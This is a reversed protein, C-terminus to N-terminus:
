GELKLNKFYFYLLVSLFIIGVCYGGIVDSAWHAGLYIRSVSVFLILALSAASVLVRWLQPIKKIVIMATALFGFFVVYFVVHGSPFSPDTLQQYVSVLTDTPRPRHIIIKIIANAGSALLTALAFLAERRRRILFFAIAAILVTVFAVPPEGFFSVAQMAPLYTTGGEQIEKTIAVDVFPTPHYHVLVSLIVAGAVAALILGVAIHKAFRSHFFRNM